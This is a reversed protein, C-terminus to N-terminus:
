QMATALRCVFSRYPRSALLKGVYRCGGLKGALLSHPKPLRIKRDKLRLSLNLNRFRSPRVHRAAPRVIGGTSNRLCICVIRGTVV